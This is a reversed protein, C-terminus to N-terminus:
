IYIYIGGFIQLVKYRFNDAVAPGYKRNISCFARYERRTCFTKMFKNVDTDGWFRITFDPHADSLEALHKLIEPSCSSLGKATLHLVKPICGWMAASPVPAMYDTYFQKM